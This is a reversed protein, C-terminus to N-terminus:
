HCDCAKDKIRQTTPLNRKQLSDQKKYSSNSKGTQKGSGFLKLVTVQVTRALSRSSFCQNQPAYANMNTIWSLPSTCPLPLFTQCPEVIKINKKRREKKAESFLNLSERHRLKSIEPFITVLPLEILLGSNCKEM